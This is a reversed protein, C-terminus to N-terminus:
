ESTPMCRRQNLSCLGVLPIFTIGVGFMKHITHMHPQPLFLFHMKIINVLASIWAFVCSRATECMGHVCMRSRRRALAGMMYYCHMLNGNKKRRKRKRRRRRRKKKERQSKRHRRKNRSPEPDDSLPRDARPFLPAFLRSYLNSYSQHLGIYLIM